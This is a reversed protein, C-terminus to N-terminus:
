NWAALIAGNLILVVLFYGANIQWLKWPRGEFISNAAMTIATFGLWLWFGTVAGDAASTSGAYRVFHALVFAQVLAGATTLAYGTRANDRMDEIKKATLKSWQKGFLSQSYWVGGVAMNVVAALIIAWYNIDVSPM